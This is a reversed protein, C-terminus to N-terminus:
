GRPKKRYSGVISGIMVAIYLEGVVAELGAMARALPHVPLIDGYGLSILPCCRPIPRPSPSHFM